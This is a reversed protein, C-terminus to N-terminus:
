FNEVCILINYFNPLNRFKKLSILFNEEINKSIDSINKPM